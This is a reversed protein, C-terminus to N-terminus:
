KKGSRTNYGPLEMNFFFPNTGYLTKEFIARSDYTITGSKLLVQYQGDTNINVLLRRKPMFTHGKKTTYLM